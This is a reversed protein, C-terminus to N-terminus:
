VTRGEGWGARRIGWELSGGKQRSPEEPRFEPSAIGCLRGPHPVHGSGGMSPSEGELRHKPGLALISAESAM